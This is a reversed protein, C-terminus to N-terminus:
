MKARRQASLVIRKRHRREPERLYEYIDVDMVDHAVPKWGITVPAGKSVAPNDGLIIAFEHIFVQDFKVKSNNTNNAAAPSPVESSATTTMTTTATSTQCM